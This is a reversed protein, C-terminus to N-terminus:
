AHLIGRKGEAVLKENQKIVAPDLAEVAGRLSDVLKQHDIVGEVREGVTEAIAELIEDGIQEALLYANRHVFFAAVAMLVNAINDLYKFLRTVGVREHSM